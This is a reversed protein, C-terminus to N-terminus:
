NLYEEAYILKLITDANTLKSILVSNTFNQNERVFPVYIVRVNSDGVSRGTSNYQPAAIM